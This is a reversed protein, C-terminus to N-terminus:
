LQHGCINPVLCCQSLVATGLTLSKSPNPFDANYRVATTPHAADPQQKLLDQTREGEQVEVKWQDVHVQLWLLIKVGTCSRLRKIDM